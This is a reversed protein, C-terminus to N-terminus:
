GKGGVQSIFIATFQFFTLYIYLYIRLKAVGHAIPAGPIPVKSM